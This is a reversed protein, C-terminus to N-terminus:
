RKTSKQVWENLINGLWFWDRFNPVFHLLFLEVAMVYQLFKRVLTTRM